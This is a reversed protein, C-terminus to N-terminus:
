GISFKGGFTITKTGPTISYRSGALVTTTKPTGAEPTVTVTGGTTFEVVDDTQQVTYPSTEDGRGLPMAQINKDM